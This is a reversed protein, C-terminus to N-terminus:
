LLAASSGCRLRATDRGARVEEAVAEPIVREAGLAEPLDLLGIKGLAILPSVDFVWRRVLAESM